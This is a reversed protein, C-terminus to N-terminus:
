LAGRAVVASSIIRNKCYSMPYTVLLCVRHLLLFNLPKLRYLSLSLSHSRAHPSLRYLCVYLSFSLSPSLAYSVSLCLPSSVFHLLSLISVVDTLPPILSVFLHVFVSLSCLVTLSKLFVSSWETKSTLIVFRFEDTSTPAWLVWITTNNDCHWKWIPFPVLQHGNTM